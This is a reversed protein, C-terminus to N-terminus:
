EIHDLHYPEIPILFLSVKSAYVENLHTILPTHPFITYEGPMNQLNM